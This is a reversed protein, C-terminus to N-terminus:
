LSEAIRHQSCKRTVQNIYISFLLPEPVSAKPAGPLMNRKSSIQNDIQTTQVRGNLYSSFWGTVPDRIGHHYLKSLLISNYMVKIFLRDFLPLLSIPRDNSPDTKDGGKYIPIVKAHRLKFPYQGITVSSTMTQALPLSLLTRSSELVRVRCSYLGQSKNCPLLLIEIEFEMSTTPEFLFSSSSNIAFFYDSFQFIVPPVSGALTQGM